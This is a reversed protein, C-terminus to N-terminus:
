CKTHILVIDWTVFTNRRYHRPIAIVMMVHKLPTRKCVMDFEAVYTSINQQSIRLSRLWRSSENAHELRSGQMQMQQHDKLAGRSEIGEMIMHLSQKASALICANRCFCSTHNMTLLLKCKKVPCCRRRCTFIDNAANDEKNIEDTTIRTVQLM